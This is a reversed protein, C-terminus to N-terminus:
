VVVAASGAPVPAPISARAVTLVTIDDQQGWRQAADAIEAARMGTLAAMRDFGLLEGTADRAEIV